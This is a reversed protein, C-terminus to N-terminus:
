GRSWPGRETEESLREGRQSGGPAKGAGERWSGTELWGKSLQVLVLLDGVSGVMEENVGGDETRGEEASVSSPGRNAARGASGLRGAQREDLNGGKPLNAEGDAKHWGEELSHSSPLICDQSDPRVEFCSTAEPPDETGATLVLDGDGGEKGGDCRRRWVQDRGGRLSM